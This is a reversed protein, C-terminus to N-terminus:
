KAPSFVNALCNLATLEHVCAHYKDYADIFQMCLVRLAGRSSPVDVNASLFECLNDEADVLIALVKEKNEAVSASVKGFDFKPM